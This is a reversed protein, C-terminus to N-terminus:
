GEEQKHTGTDASRLVDHLRTLGGCTAARPRLLMNSDQSPQRAGFASCSENRMGVWAAKTDAPQEKLRFPSQLLAQLIADM